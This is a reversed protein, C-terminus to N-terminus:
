CRCGRGRGGASSRYANEIQLRNRSTWNPQYTGDSSMNPTRLGTRATFNQYSDRFWARVGDKPEHTKDVWNRGTGLGDSSTIYGDLSYRVADWCHNHKDLVIPLVEGTLRDTKYSYLRAEDIAHKCREHIVIEEFGRLYTIGDEVSGAWKTAGDINFGQRAMYSITEPRSCDGHIPWKRAEPISDYFQPM